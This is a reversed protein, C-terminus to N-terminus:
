FYWSPEVSIQPKHAANALAARVRSAVTQSAVGIRQVLSWPFDDHLLFEAQKAEKL